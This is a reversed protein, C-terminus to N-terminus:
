KCVGRDREGASPPKISWRALRTTRGILMADPHPQVTLATSAIVEVKGSPALSADAIAVACALDVSGTEAAKTFSAHLERLHVMRTTLPSGFDKFIKLKTENAVLKLGHSAMLHYVAENSMDETIAFILSSGPEVWQAPFAQAQLYIGPGPQLWPPMDKFVRSATDLHATQYIAEGLSVVFLLSTLWAVWPRRGRLDGGTGFPWFLEREALWDAGLLCMAIQTVHLFVFNSGGKASTLFTAAIGVFTVLFLFRRVDSRRHRVAEIASMWFGLTLFGAQFLVAVLFAITGAAVAGWGLKNFFMAVPFVPITTLYEATGTLGFNLFGTGSFEALGPLGLTFALGALSGTGIAFVRSTLWLDIRRASMTEILWWISVAAGFLAGVNARAMTTAAGLAFLVAIHPLVRQPRACLLVATAVLFSVHGLLPSITLTGSTPLSRVFYGFSIPGFGVVLYAAITSLVAARATLDLLIRGYAYLGVVALWLYIIPGCYGGVVIATMNTASAMAALALHVAYNDRWPLGAVFPNATPWGAEMTKATIAQYVFHARVGPWELIALVCVAAIVTAIVTITIMPGFELKADGGPEHARGLHWAISAASCMALGAVHWPLVGAVFFPTLLIPHIVAGAVLGALLRMSRDKVPPLALRVLALGVPLVLCWLYATLKAAGGADVGAVFLALWLGAAPIALHSIPGAPIRGLQRSLLGASFAMELGGSFATALVSADQQDMASAPVPSKPTFWCAM